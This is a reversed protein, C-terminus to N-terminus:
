EPGLVSHPMSFKFEFQMFVRLVPIRSNGKSQEVLRTGCRLRKTDGMPCVDLCILNDGSIVYGAPGGVTKADFCGPGLWQDCKCLM